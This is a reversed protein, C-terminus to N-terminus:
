WGEFLVLEKSDEGTAHIFCDYFRNTMYDEKQYNYYLTIKFTNKSKLAFKSYNSKEAKLPNLGDITSDCVILEKGCKNCRCVISIQKNSKILLPRFGGRTQKGTHLVHFHESGCDCVLSAQIAVGQIQKDIKLNDMIRLRNM